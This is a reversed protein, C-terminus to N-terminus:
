FPLAFEDRPFIDSNLELHAQGDTPRLRQATTLFPRLLSAIDVGAADYYHRVALVRAVVADPDFAIPTRSGIYIEGGLALVHPFVSLFTARIRETPVWSVAYGDPKLHRALTTFYERSYLNGAYASSPRLADAEIIDFSRGAHSIHARGDGVHHEIRRDSLVALLGPYRHFQLFRELTRRQAGLIEISVLRQIEARGAAAFATDGSGLGIIAVDRPAPHIFAPLAGLATHINGYPLWSQGLGNVYVEVAGASLTHQFKLLSLGAGDEDFLMRAPTTAHLRAWLWSGSPMAVVVLATATAAIVTGHMRRRDGRPWMAIACLPGVIAGLAVLAKLTGATGLWHLLLGGTVIAGLVGGAINAALLKGLRRGVHPLDWQSAKQLYPFSMGMLFTPPGILVAPVVFYLVAFERLISLAEAHFWGLQLVRSLTDHVNLPEYSGLFSVLRIPYGAAVSAVLAAISFGVYLVGGFQLAFFTGGPRRSRGVMQAGAIAGAGLGALYIALLTGFTFSTSKQLVGLLRFWAIELSLAIFGTLGYLAVWANFIRTEASSETVYEAVSPPPTRQGEAGRSSIAVRTALAACIANIAAAVWLSHELGLRPVLVWPAIFAGAAAGLTNCGYLLGIVRPTVSLSGALARALLPLSVGMLFTPLLLTAFLVAAAVTNTAALQPYRLYLVDYYLSKSILGFAGIGLESAAFAYVNARPTLRDAIHGGALSGIGLGAMYAAVIVTVSFVDAGSFIVLLRQWIVQYILAACGSLSFVILPLV